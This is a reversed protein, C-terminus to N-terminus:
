QGKEINEHSAAQALRPVFEPFGFPISLVSLASTSWVSPPDDLAVYRGRDVAPITKFLPNSEAADRAGRGYWMILIDSELREVQEFSISASFRGPNAKGLEAVIPAVKLGLAGLAAVRPDDPLYVVLGSAGPFYSGFVFTKQALSPNQQGLERLFGDTREILSKARDPVGLAQGTLLTQEQWTAIWPGSRYVVTSAIASLRNWAVQDVGSRIALILDPRLAAIEEFDIAGPSFFTIEAGAIYRQNWPLVGTETNPYRPMAVPAFGLAFVSDEGNWGITVIRKPKTPITTTGLAHKITVPFSPEDAWVNMQASLFILFALSLLIRMPKETANTTGRAQLRAAGPM